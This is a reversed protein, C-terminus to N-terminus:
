CSARARTPHSRAVFLEVFIEGRGQSERFIHGCTLVLAEDGHVDIITGTGHSVGTADVVRLRVTAELAQQQAANGRPAAATPQPDAGSPQPPPGPLDARGLKWPRYRFARASGDDPSQGRM